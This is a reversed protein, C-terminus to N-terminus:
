SFLAKLNKVKKLMSMVRNKDEQWSHWQEGLKTWSKQTNKKPDM